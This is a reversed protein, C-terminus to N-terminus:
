ISSIRCNVITPTKSKTKVEIVFQVEKYSQWKCYHGPDFGATAFSRKEYMKSLRRLNQVNKTEFSSISNFECKNTNM